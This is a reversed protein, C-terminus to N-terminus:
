HLTSIKFLRGLHDRVDKECGESISYYTDSVSPACKLSKANKPIVTYWQSPKMESSFLDEIERRALEPISLSEERADCCVAM